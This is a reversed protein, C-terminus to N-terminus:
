KGGLFAADDATAPFLGAPDELKRTAPQVAGGRMRISQAAGYGQEGAGLDLASGDAGALAVAGTNVRVYSGAPAGSRTRIQHALEIDTGRIGITLTPTKLRVGAPNRKGIDGTIFRIAGVLLDIKQSLARLKASLGSESISVSTGPRVLMKAGDNMGVLVSADPGTQIRDGEMVTTSEAIDIEKEKGDQNRSLVAQGQMRIVKGAERPEDAADVKPRGADEPVAKPPALTTAAVPATGAAAPPISVIRVRRNVAAKPNAPDALESAGKGETQLLSVDVGEGALVETVSRARRASLALNYAPAGVADTHGEVLFQSGKLAPDKMAAALRQLLGLSAPSVKASDFEFLIALELKGGQTAPAGALSRSRMGEAPRPRLADVMDKVSPEAAMAFPAVALWGALVVWGALLARAIRTATPNCPSGAGSLVTPPLLFVPNLM